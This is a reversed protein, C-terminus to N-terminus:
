DGIARVEGNVVEFMSYPAKDVSTSLVPETGTVLIQRDSSMVMEFFAHSRGSDLESDVDDLLVVPAEGRELEILNIIALKLSLVISRSQGQSAFARTDHGNLTIRVDDRHPGILATQRAIERTAGRALEELIFEASTTGNDALMSSKLHLKLEGDLPAFDRMTQQAVKEFRELLKARAETIIAGSLAIIKNWPGLHEPTTGEQKLLAAKNKVARACDIAHRMLSPNLDVLARDLFKRREYPAGKVIEIDTPSFSVCLLKGVFEAISNVRAGNVYCSRSKQDISVGLETEGSRELIHGFVSAESKGWSILDRQNTTRFSKTLSLFNVAEVLNTKGQGNKGVIMKPGPPLTIIQDTFNRFNYLRLSKLIM